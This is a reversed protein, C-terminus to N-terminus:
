TPAQRPALLMSGRRLSASTRAPARDLQGCAGRVEIMRTTVIDCDQPKMDISAALIMLVTDVDTVGMAYLDSLVNCAGIRGQLYPDEVLPYFFDTTSVLLVGPMSTQM